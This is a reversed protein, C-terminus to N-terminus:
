LVVLAQIFLLGCKMGLLWKPQCTYSLVFVLEYKYNEDRLLTFEVQYIRNKFTPPFLM